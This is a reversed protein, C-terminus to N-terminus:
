TQCEIDVAVKEEEDSTTRWTISHADEDLPDDGTDPAYSPTLESIIEILQSESHHHSRVEKVARTTKTTQGDMSRSRRLEQAKNFSNQIARRVQKRDVRRTLQYTQLQSVCIMMACHYCCFLLCLSIVFCWAFFGFLFLNRNLNDDDDENLLDESVWREVRDLFGM